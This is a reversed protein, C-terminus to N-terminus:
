RDRGHGELLPLDILVRHGAKRRVRSCSVEFTSTLRRGRDFTGPQGTFPSPQRRILTAGDRPGFFHVVGVGAEPVEPEADVADQAYSRARRAGSPLARRPVRRLPRRSLRQLGGVLRCVSLIFTTKQHYAGPRDGNGPDDDREADEGCAPYNCLCNPRERCHEWVASLARSRLPISRISTLSSPSSEISRDCRGGQPSDLAKSTTAHCNLPM